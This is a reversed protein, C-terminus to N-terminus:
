EGSMTRHGSIERWQVVRVRENRPVFASAPIIQEFEDGPGQWSLFLGADSWGEMYQIELQHEGASLDVTGTRWRYRHSSSDEVVPSGDILLRAYQDSGLGFTWAGSRPVDLTGTVVLGFHDSGISEEWSSRTINWSVRPETTTKTPELSELTDLSMGRTSNFWRATLAAEGTEYPPEPDMVNFASAPIIEEYEANPAKWTVNLGADSWGEWYLVEFKHTGAALDVLGSRWRYSHSSTDVVVPEDNILLIASQDSGLNFTWTGSEPVTLESVLRVGFRDTPGDVYFADRTIPWAVNDVISTTSHEAYDIQGANSAHRANNTWYARLGGGPETPTESERLSFATRPVIIETPVTPGKWALHLGADSWGEWYRIEIDHKGESLSVTGNRWRYSHGTIDVVVPEDNILLVASQDSGLSFTWDGSAPIDIQGLIRAGFRDTPTDDDFSGRTIRWAINPITTAHSHDSYDIQGANSAHRANTTWYARLGGGGSDYPIETDTHSFASSPIVEEVGGPPKWSVVLGANSRGEWYRVEFDHEGAELDITGNRWRFSHGTDDNVVLQGNIFLQASQDSGLGFTWQGSRPIAIKGVARLGFNDSAVGGESQVTTTTTSGGNNRLHGLARGPVDGGHGRGRNEHGRGRNNNQQEVEVETGEFPERTIGWAINSELTVRDYNQWDIHGVRAAHRASDVWYVRLGDANSSVQEDSEAPSLADAPIVQEFQDGPGKWTTVLGANSWGEWYLIEIDHEGATLSRSGYRWRFSHGTTDDVIPTGDIYIRASQDSGLGFTWTGSRPINIKGVFRNGFRDTPGGNFFSGRTIPYYINQVTDMSDYDAWDIQGVNSAHRADDYRYAHLGGGSTPNPAGSGPRFASSPIIQSYPDNPGKWAVHLAADSWGEWYRIEITHDGESLDITGSRWRFSHGTPDAVVLNGDIFLLASQDSGLDFTWTGAEPVDIIGMFRAAFYDTPGGLEFSGRTKRYSPRQVTEVRTANSWDIQGVNRAHRVGHFWYAWLGDGGPDYIPEQAPSSFASAPVVEEVSMGPGFWKLVLGADSWGEWYLVEIDHLGSTLSTIASRSRYSHGTDDVILPEGDILLVASQDSELRFTWSGDSPIDIQGVLRLAFYDEPGGIFFPDRSREFNIQDVQTVEDYQEWDVRGIHNATRANTNWYARLGPTSEDPDTAQALTNSTFVILSVLILLVADLRAYLPKM